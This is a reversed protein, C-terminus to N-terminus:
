RGSWRRLKSCGSRAVRGELWSMLKTLEKQDSKIIDRADTLPNMFDMKEGNDGELCLVDFAAPDTEDVYKLIRLADDVAPEILASKNTRELLAHLGLYVYAPIYYATGRSQMPDSLCGMLLKRLKPFESMLVRVGSFHGKELVGILTYHSKEIFKPNTKAFILLKTLRM